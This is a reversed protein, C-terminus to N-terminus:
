PPLEHALMQRCHAEQGQASHAGGGGMWASIQETGYARVARVSNNAQVGLSVLKCRKCVTVKMNTKGKGKSM